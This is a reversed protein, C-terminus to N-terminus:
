LGYPKVDRPILKVRMYTEHGLRHLAIHCESRPNVYLMTITYVGERRQCTWGHLPMQEDLFRGLDEVLTPGVYLSDVVRFSGVYAFSEKPLYDFGKPVPVDRPQYDNTIISEPPYLQGPDMVFRKGLCGTSALTVILGLALAYRLM